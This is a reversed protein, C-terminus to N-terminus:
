FYDLLGSTKGKAQEAEYRMQAEKRRAQDEKFRRNREERKAKREAAKKAAQQQRELAEAEKQALAEMNAKELEERTPEAADEATNTKSKDAEVGPLVAGSPLSPAKPEAAKFGSPKSPEKVTKADWGSPSSPEKVEKPRYDGPVSAPKVEKPKMKVSPEAAPKVTKPAIDLPEPKPAAEREARKRESEKVCEKHQITRATTMIAEIERKREFSVERAQNICRNVLFTYYCAASKAKLANDIKSLREDCEELAQEAQKPTELAGPKQWKETFSKDALFADAKRGLDEYYDRKEPNVGTFIPTRWGADGSSDSPQASEEALGAGSALLFSFCLFGAIRFSCNM